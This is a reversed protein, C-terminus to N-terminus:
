GGYGLEELNRAIAEDLKKAQAMQERLQVVLRQMKEKFQEADEEAAESAVYRGPTVVHGHKRIEDLTAAKCFGPIDHYTTHADRGHLGTLHGDQEHATAGAQESFESVQPVGKELEEVPPVGTGGVWKWDSLGAKAPNNLVYEVAHTFDQEDRILHDFSEPQWFAGTRALVKNAEKATFSKWSHLIGDLSYGSM